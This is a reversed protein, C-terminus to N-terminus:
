VKETFRPTPRFKCSGVENVDTDVIGRLGLEEWNDLLGSQELVPLELITITETFLPFAEQEEEPLELISALLEAENIKRGGTKGFELVGAFTKVNKQRWSGDPKKNQEENKRRAISEVDSWYCAKIAELDGELEKRMAKYNAELADIEGQKRSMSSLATCWHKCASKLKDHIEQPIRQLINDIQEQSLDKGEVIFRPERGLQMTVEAPCGEQELNANIEVMALRIDKAKFANLVFDEPADTFGYEVESDSNRLSGVSSAEPQAKPKRGGRKPKAGATEAPSTGDQSSNVNEVPAPSSGAATCTEESQATPATTPSSTISDAKPTNVEESTDGAVAESKPVDSGFLADLAEQHKREIEAKEGEDMSVPESAKAASADDDRQLAIDLQDELDKGEMEEEYFEKEEETWANIVKEQAKDLQEWTCGTLDGVIEKIAERTHGCAIGAEYLAEIDTESPRGMHMDPMAELEAKLKAFNELTFHTVGTLIYSDGQIISSPYGGLDGVKDLLWSRTQGKIQALDLLTKVQDVTAESPRDENFVEVTM